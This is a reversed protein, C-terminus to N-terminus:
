MIDAPPLSSKAHSSLGQIWFPCMLPLEDKWLSAHVTHTYVSIICLSVLRQDMKIRQLICAYSHFFSLAALEIPVRLYLFLASFLVYTQYSHHHTTTNHCNRFGEKKNVDYLLKEKVANSYRNPYTLRASKVRLFHEFRPM